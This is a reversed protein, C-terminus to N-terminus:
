VRSPPARAGGPLRALMGLRPAALPLALPSSARRGIAVMFADVDGTLAPGHSLCLVCCSTHDDDGPTAPSPTTAGHSQSCLMGPIAAFQHRVVMAGAGFSALLASLALAYAAVRAVGARAM